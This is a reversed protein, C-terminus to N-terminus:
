AYRYLRMFLIFVHGPVSGGPAAHRRHRAAFHYACIFIWNFNREGRQIQKNGSLSSAAAAYCALLISYVVLVSCVSCTYAFMARRDLGVRTRRRKYLHPVRQQRKHSNQINQTGGFLAFHSFFLVLHVNLGKGARQANFEYKENAYNQIRHWRRRSVACGKEYFCRNRPRVDHWLNYTFCRIWVKQLPSFRAPM